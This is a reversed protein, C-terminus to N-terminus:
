YYNKNKNNFLFFCIALLLLIYIILYFSENIDGYVKLEHEYYYYIIPIIISKSFISMFNPHFIKILDDNQLIYIIWLVPAMHWINLFLAFNPIIKDRQIKNPILKGLLGIMLKDFDCIQILLIILLNVIVLPMFVFFLEFANMYYSLICIVISLNSIFKFTLASKIYFWISINKNSIQNSNINNNNNIINNNNIM